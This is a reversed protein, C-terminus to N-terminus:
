LKSLDLKHISVSQDRIAHWKTRPENQTFANWARITSKFIVEPLLRTSKAQHRLLFERLSHAACNDYAPVGSQFVRIFADAKEPMELIISGIYHLAALLSAPPGKTKEVLVISDKLLPHRGVIELLEARTNRRSRYGVAAQGEGMLKIQLIVRATAALRNPSRHDIGDLVLIDPLLRPRGQDMAKQAEPPLGTVVASEFPTEAIICALLRHQGNILNGHLDFSIPDGTYDWRKNRMDRAYAYITSDSRSRNKGNREVWKEALPPTIVMRTLGEPVHELGPILAIGTGNGANGNHAPQVRRASSKAAKLLDADSPVAATANTM